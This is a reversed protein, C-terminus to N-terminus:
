RTSLFTSCSMPTADVRETLVLDTNTTEPQTM